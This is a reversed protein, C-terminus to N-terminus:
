DKKNGQGWKNYSTVDRIPKRKSGGFHEEKAPYGLPILAATEINQPINLLQKIEQEYKRHITTLVTGLGLGRAALLINQVVPYISAGQVFTPTSSHERSVELCVLILVPVKGMQKGLELGSQSSQPLTSPDVDPYISTWADLYWGSIRKKIQPDQIIIFHWPQRNTASPAHTAAEIITSILHNPVPETSYRRISRQSEMAEFLPMDRM